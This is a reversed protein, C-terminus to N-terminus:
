FALFMRQMLVMWLGPKDRALALLINKHAEDSAGAKVIRIVDRKNVPM